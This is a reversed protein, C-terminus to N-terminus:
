KSNIIANYLDNIFRQINIYKCVARYLNCDSNSLPAIVPGATCQTFNSTLSLTSTSLILTLYHKMLPRNCAHFLYNSHHINFTSYTM